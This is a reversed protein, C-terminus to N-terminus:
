APPLMWRGPNTLNRWKLAETAIWSWFNVAAEEFLLGMRLTAQSTATQGEHWVQQMKRYEQLQDRHIQEQRRALNVIQDPESPNSFFLKLLGLDRIETPQSTPQAAWDQLMRLGAETIAFRRRQRGGSEQEQHLLGAKVLELPEAYLQSHPFRWFHGVSQWVARKLDYSTSPGMLALLGLVVYSTTTLDRPM